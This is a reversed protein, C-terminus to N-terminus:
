DRPSPSTYLLCDESENRVSSAILKLNDYRTSLERAAAEISEVSSCGLFRTADDTGCVLLDCLRALESLTEAALAEASTGERWQWLKSRYNIDMAVRVGHKRAAQMAHRTAIAATESIAPTIGSVLFWAAGDFIDDWNYQSSEALSVASGCRDYIVEGPRLGSGPEYFFIGLRDSSTRVVFRTEVGHGKLDAVCADALPGEPLTTVFSADGGLSAITVAANAEAGAFTAGVNGPFAQAFRAQSLPSLRLMIEGFTVVKNM